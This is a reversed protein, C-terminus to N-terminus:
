SRPFQFKPHTKWSKGIITLCFEKCQLPIKLTLHSPVNEKQTFGFGCIHCIYPREGTHSRIHVNYHSRGACTLGCEECKILNKSKDDDSHIFNPSQTLLIAWFLRNWFSCNRFLRNWIPPKLNPFISPRTFTPASKCSSCGLALNKSEPGDEKPLNM